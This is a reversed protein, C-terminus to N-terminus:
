NYTVTVNFTGSYNGPPQNNGVSLTAGIMLTQSGGAGIQGTPGPSSAFNNVAMSNAGSTLSVEGNGQLTIAYTANANGSVTFQAAAGPGSSVLVVGGGSSRTGAASVTVTGGSGAAFSGFTLAQGAVITQAWGASAATAAWALTCLRCLKHM